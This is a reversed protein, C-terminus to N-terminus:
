SVYTRQTHRLQLRSGASNLSVTVTSKNVSSNTGITPRERNYVCLYVRPGVGWVFVVQHVSRRWSPFSSMTTISNVDASIYNQVGVLEGRRQLSVLSICGYLWSADAETLIYAKVSQAFIQGTSNPM